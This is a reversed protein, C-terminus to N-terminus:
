PQPRRQRREEFRERREEFRERRHERFQKREAKMSELQEVQDPTLVELVKGAQRARLVAMEVGVAAVAGAKTRM